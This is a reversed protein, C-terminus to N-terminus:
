RGRDRLYECDANAIAGEMLQCSQRNALAVMGGTLRRSREQTYGSCVMSRSRRKASWRIALSRQYEITAATVSASPMPTLAVTKVSTLATNNLPKGNLFECSRYM